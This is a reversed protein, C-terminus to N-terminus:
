ALPTNLTEMIIPVSGAASLTPNLNFSNAKSIPWVDGLRNLVLADIHTYGSQPIREGTWTYLTQLNGLDGDIFPVRDIIAEVHTINANDLHLAVLDGNGKPLSPIEFKGSTASAFNVEHVEVITGLDRGNADVSVFADGSLTPNTATPALEVQVEFTSVNRMGWGVNEEAAMTKLWPRALPIVLRGANFAIGYYKNLVDIIYKGSVSFRTIGNIKFNVRKIAAKMTAENAPTGSEAYNLIITRYTIRGRELQVSPSAGAAVGSFSPLRNLFNFM